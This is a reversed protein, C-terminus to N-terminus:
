AAGFCRSRLLAAVERTLRYVREALPVTLAALGCSPTIRASAVLVERDIDKAILRQWAAELRAVLSEATETAAADSTPM